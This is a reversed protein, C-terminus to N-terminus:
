QIVENDLYFNVTDFVTGTELIDAENEIYYELMQQVYEAVTCGIEEATHVLLERKSEELVELPLSEV